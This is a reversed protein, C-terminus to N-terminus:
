VAVASGVPLTVDDESIDRESTQNGISALADILQDIQQKTRKETVAILMEREGVPYGGIVGRRWLAANVEDAAVPCTVSFEKFFRAKPYTLSYGPVGAIGDAAYHAKRLCLEAVERMGRKGMTALYVTAALAHLAVNTCINSTARERRIDQERTRLTMVYARRGEVDRTAGVIRGPLRRMFDQKCAFLGLLPGGFGMTNGLSQGEGVAIDAGYAGPPALIGLSIPDFASIFLAGRSHAARGIAAVDELNGNFNPQQVVVAAVDDCLASAVRESGILGEDSSVIQLAIDMNRLYTRMVAVYAPNVTAAVLVRKRSTLEAAMIAAEALGTAADYMSANALDMGTLEAILTQFEYIGQLTGQSVEPQYPTYSTYFESRGVIAGVTPPVYHDYIGAGLFTPYRDSDANRAALDTYRTTLGIQDIRGPIKLRGGLRLDQPIPAFLDDISEAGIADLMARRDEDTTAIYAL